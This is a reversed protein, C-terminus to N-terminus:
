ATELDLVHLEMGRNDAYGRQLYLPRAQTSAHIHLLNVGRERSQAEAVDLLARSLGLGRASPQVYVNLLYAWVSLMTDPNPPMDTWILGAGAVVAGGQEMLWGQYYQRALAGRLWSLGADSVAQVRQATEGMEVFLADRHSQITEADAVTAPRLTFGKPLSM